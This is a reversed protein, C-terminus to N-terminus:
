AFTLAQEGEVAAGQLWLFQHAQPERRRKKWFDRRREDRRVRDVAKSLRQSAHFHDRVIKAQPSAQRTADPSTPGMDMSSFIVQSAADPRVTQRESRWQRVVRLKL